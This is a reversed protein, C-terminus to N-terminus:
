VGEDAETIGDSPAEFLTSLSCNKLLIIVRLRDSESCFARGVISDHGSVLQSVADELAVGDRLQERLFRVLVRLTAQEDGQSQRLLGITQKVTARHMERVELSM